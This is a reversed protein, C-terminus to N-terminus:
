GQQRTQKLAAVLGLLERVFRFRGLGHAARVAAVLEHVADAVLSFRRRGVAHRFSARCLRGSVRAGYLRRAPAQGAPASGLLSGIKHLLMDQKFEANGMHVTRPREHHCVTCGALRWSAFFEDRRPWIQEFDHANMRM